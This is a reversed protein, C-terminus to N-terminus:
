STHIFGCSASCKETNPHTMVTVARYLRAGHRGVSRARRCRDIYFRDTHPERRQFCAAFCALLADLEELFLVTPQLRLEEAAGRLLSGRHLDGRVLPPEEVLDLRQRIGHCGTKLRDSDGCMFAALATALLEARLQRAHLDDVVDGFVLLDARTVTRCKLANALLDALLELHDWGLYPDQPV